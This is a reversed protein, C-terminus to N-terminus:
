LLTCGEDQVPWDAAEVCILSLWGVQARPIEPYAIGLRCGRFGLMPNAEQMEQISLRLSDLSTGLDEALRLLATADDAAPLFEQLPPDLLRVVVPLGDMAKFMEILDERQFDEIPALAAERDESTRALVMRRVAAVREDSAFLMHETRM